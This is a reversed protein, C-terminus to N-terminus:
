RRETPTFAFRQVELAFALDEVREAVEVRRLAFLDSELTAFGNQSTTAAEFGAAAVERMLSADFYRAAGGNPYSFMTVRVGLQAELLAKSEAIEARADAQGASPLNAHTLTHAGITMGVARMERLEDWSLMPSQLVPNGAAERLRQRLAEREPITRAKILRTLSRVARQKAEPTSLDFVRESGADDVRLAPGSAGFVLMRLEPLWFPRDGRLCGATIYFTASLGANALMRAVDLNDRYGDDFTIAVANPPFPKRDRIRAVADPLSVVSHHAALYRVHASFAAPSICISPDAYTAAAPECIAHYRLIALHRTAAVRRLLGYAPTKLLGSKVVPAIASRFSAFSM